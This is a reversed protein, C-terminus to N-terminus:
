KRGRGTQKRLEGRSQGRVGNRERPPDLPRAAAARRIFLPLPDSLRDRPGDLSALSTGRAPRRDDVRRLQRDRLAGGVDFNRDARMLDHDDAAFGTGALGRLQRFDAEREATALPSQDAM